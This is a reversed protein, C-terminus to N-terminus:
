NKGKKLMPALRMKITDTLYMIKKLIIDIEDKTFDKKAWEELIGSVEKVYIEFIQESKKPLCCVRDIKKKLRWVMKEFIKGNRYKLILKIEQGNISIFILIRLFIERIKIEKNKLIKGIVRSYRKYIIREHDLIVGYVTKHHRFLTSRSIGARKALVGFKPLDEGVFFADIIAAETTKFRRNNNGRKM